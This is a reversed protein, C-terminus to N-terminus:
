KDVKCIVAYKPISRYNSEEDEKFPVTNGSYGEWRIKEGPKYEKELDESVNIIEGGLTDSEFIDGSNGPAIIGSETKDSLSTVKVLLREHHPKHQTPDESSEGILLSHAVVKIYEDEKTPIMYGALKDVKYTSGVKINDPCDEGLALVEAEYFETEKFVDSRNASVIIGSETTYGKPVKISVKVSGPLPRIKDKQEKLDIM